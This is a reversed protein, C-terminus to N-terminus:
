LLFLSYLVRLYLELGLLESVLLESFVAPVSILGAGCGSLQIYLV